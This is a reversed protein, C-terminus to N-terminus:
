LSDTVAFSLNAWHNVTDAVTYAKGLFGTSSWIFNGSNINTLPLKILLLPTQLSQGPPFTWTNSPVMASGGTNSFSKDSYDSVVPTPLSLAGLCPFYTMVNSTEFVAGGYIAGTLFLYKSRPNLLASVPCNTVDNLHFNMNQANAGTSIWASGVGWSWCFRALVM